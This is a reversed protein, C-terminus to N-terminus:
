AFIYRSRRVESYWEGFDVDKKNSLGVVLGTGKKADDEKAM